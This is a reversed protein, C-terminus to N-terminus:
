AQGCLLCETYKMTKIHPTEAECPMCHSYYVEDLNLAYDYVDSSNGNSYLDQAKKSIKEAQEKTLIM